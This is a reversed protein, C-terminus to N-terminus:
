EFYCTACVSPISNTLFQRQFSLFFSSFTLKKRTGPSDINKAARFTPAPTVDDVVVDVVDVMPGDGLGSGLSRTRTDGFESASSNEDCHDLPPRSADYFYRASCFIRKKSFNKFFLKMELSVFFTRSYLKQQQVKNISLYRHFRLPFFFCVYGM